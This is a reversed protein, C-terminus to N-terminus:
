IICIVIYNVRIKFDYKMSFPALPVLSEAVPFPINGSSSLEGNSGDLASLPSPYM